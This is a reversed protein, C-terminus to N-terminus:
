EPPPTPGGHIRERLTQILSFFVPVLLTGALVAMITGGFVTLGLSIRSAAGAGSAIVLPYVGVAFSLGTMLVPRFRLTAAKLAAEHLELQDNERLTKAFEVILIATKSAMGILLVLGIQGYLSLSQGMIFLALLAGVM